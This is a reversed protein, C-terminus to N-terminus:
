GKTAFIRCKSMNFRLNDENLFLAITDYGSFEETDLYGDDSYIITNEEDYFNAKIRVNDELKEGPLLAIELLLQLWGNSENIGCFGYGLLQLNFKAFTAEVVEVCKNLQKQLIDKDM